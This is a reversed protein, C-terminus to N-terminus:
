FKGKTEGLVGTVVVSSFGVFSWLVFGYSFMSFEPEINWCGWFCGLSCLPLWRLTRVGLLALLLDFPFGPFM